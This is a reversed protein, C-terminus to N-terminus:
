DMFNFSNLAVRTTNRAKRHFNNALRFSTVDVLFLPLLLSNQASSQFQPVLVFSIFALTGINSITDFTRARKFYKDSLKLDVDLTPNSNRINAFQADSLPIKGDFYRMKPGFFGHQGRMSLFPQTSYTSRLNFNYMDTAEEISQFGNNKMVNGAIALGIGAISGIFYTRFAAQNGGLASSLMGISSVFVVVPATYSLIRGGQFTNLGRALQDDKLDTQNMLARVENASMREGDVLFFLGGWNSEQLVITSLDLSKTNSFYSTQQGEVDNKIILFAVLFLCIRQLLVNGM